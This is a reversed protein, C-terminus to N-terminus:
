FKFGAATLSREAAIHERRRRTPTRTNATPTEGSLAAFFRRIARRTTIRGSPTNLTELRIGKVGATAWRYGVKRNLKKGDHRPVEPLSPIERISYAQEGAELDDNISETYMSARGAGQSSPVSDGEYPPHFRPTDIQDPM